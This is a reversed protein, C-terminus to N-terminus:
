LLEAVLGEKEGGGGLGEAGFSFPKKPLSEKGMKTFVFSM